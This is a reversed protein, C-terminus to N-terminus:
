LGLTTEIKVASKQLYGKKYKSIDEIYMNLKIMVLEGGFLTVFKSKIIKQVLRGYPNNQWM